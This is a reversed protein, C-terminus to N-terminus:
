GVMIERTKDVITKGIEWYLEILGRNLKCYATVRASVIKEKIEKLFQLYDSKQITEKKSTM